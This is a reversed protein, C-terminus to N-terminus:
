NKTATSHQIGKLDDILLPPWAGFRFKKRAVRSVLRRKSAFGAWDIQEFAQQFAEVSPSYYSYTDPPLVTQFPRVDREGILWPVTGMSIAEFFRFSSGGYGRPAIALASSRLLRFYDQSNLNQSEVYLKSDPVRLAYDQLQERIPHTKLNGAFTARRSRRGIVRPIPFSSALLPADRGRDSKRSALYLTSDAVDVLPGDDYQCILLLRSGFVSFNSLYDALPALGKSGFDNNIHYRTWYVPLFIFDAEEPSEALFAPKSHIFREFDQEIGWDASYKPYRLKSSVPQFERPVTPIFFKV